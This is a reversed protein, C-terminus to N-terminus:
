NMALKVRSMRMRDKEDQSDKIKKLMCNELGYTLISLTLYALKLKEQHKRKKYILIHLNLVM